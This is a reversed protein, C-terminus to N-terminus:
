PRPGTGAASPTRQFEALLLSLYEDGNRAALASLQENVLADIAPKVALNLAVFAEGWDDRTSCSSSCRACRSGRRRRRGRSGPPATEALHDGHANALVKTWYAIRQIRRLEDAAQFNACNIIFASPAMQAVYLGTM